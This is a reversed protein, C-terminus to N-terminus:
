KDHLSSDNDDNYYGLPNKVFFSSEALTGYLTVNFPILNFHKFSYFVGRTSEVFSSTRSCGNFRMIITLMHVFYM